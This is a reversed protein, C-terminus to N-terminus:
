RAGAITFRSTALGLRTRRPPSTRSRVMMNQSMRSKVVMESLISASARVVRSLSKRVGIDSATISFPPVISLYIPSEIM